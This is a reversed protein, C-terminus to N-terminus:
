GARLGKKAVALKANLNDATITQEESTALDVVLVDGDWLELRLDANDITWPEVELRETLKTRTLGPQEALAALLGRRALGPQRKRPKKSRQRQKHLGALPEELRVLSQGLFLMAYLAAGTDGAALAERVDNLYVRASRDMYRTGYGTVPKATLKAEVTDLHATIRALLLAPDAKESDAQRTGATVSEMFEKPNV